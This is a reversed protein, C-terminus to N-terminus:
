DARSKQWSSIKQSSNTMELTSFRFLYDTLESLQLDREILIKSKDISDFFAPWGCGSDFKLNSTFLDERCVVCSYTGAEYFQDFRGTRPRTLSVAIVPNVFITKFNPDLHYSSM